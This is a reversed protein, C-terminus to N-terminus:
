KVADIKQIDMQKDKMTRTRSEMQIIICELFSTEEGAHEQRRKWYQM